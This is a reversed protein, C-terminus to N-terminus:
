RLQLMWKRQMRRVSADVTLGSLQEPSVWALELSEDSIAVPEDGVARLLYRIDFHEHAPAGGLAPIDHVDVDFVSSEIPEIRPLGSEERAERLAVELVDTQGDAHGGLQLWRKLKRHHTLLVHTGSDNLLWASGTIHGVALSRDFCRPNTEVFSIIRRLKGEEDPDAPAHGNLQDLLQRRHM